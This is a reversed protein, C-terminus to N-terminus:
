HMQSLIWEAIMGVRMDYKRNKMNAKDKHDVDCEDPKILKIRTLKLKTLELKTM